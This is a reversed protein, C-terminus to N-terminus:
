AAGEDPHAALYARALIGGRSHALVTVRKGALRGDAGRRPHDARCPGRAPGAARCGKSRSPRTPQRQGGHARTLAPRRDLPRGRAPRFPKLDVGSLDALLETLDLPLDTVLRLLLSPPGLNNDDHREDPLYAHHWITAGGSRSACSTRAEGPAHRAAVGGERDARRDEPRPPDVVLFGDEISPLSM